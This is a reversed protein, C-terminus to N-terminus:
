RPASLCHPPSLSLWKTKWRKKNIRDVPSPEDSSSGEWVDVLGQPHGNAGCASSRSQQSEPSARIRSELKAL